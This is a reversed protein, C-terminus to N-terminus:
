YSQVLEVLRKRYTAEALAIARDRTKEDRIMQAAFITEDRTREIEIRDIGANRYQTKQPHSKIFKRIKQDEVLLEGFEQKSAYWRSKWGMVVGTRFAIPNVKQGM